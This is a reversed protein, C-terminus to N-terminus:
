GKRARYREAQIEAESPKDRISEPFDSRAYPMYKEPSTMLKGENRKLSQMWGREFENFEPTGNPYPNMYRGHEEFYKKAGLKCIDNLNM